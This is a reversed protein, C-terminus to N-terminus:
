FQYSTQVYFTRRAMPLDYRILGPALSPELVKEDFLNRVSAAVDWGAWRRTSRATLDVTTYDAVNPRTDGAARKRDAVWNVQTSFRWNSNMQWDARGYAHNRPAYGADQSTSWDVSHQHSFSGTLSLTRSLDWTTELEFGTGTQEGTNAYTSTSDLRIIDRMRYRFVNLNVQVDKDAQWALVGELTRITEPKLNPNGKQVPNNISYQEVFSPARFARGYLVKAVLNYAADWVVALRPNNTDGFDSYRDRRVGATLAWDKAFQWEDQAYVYSVMRRHPTMFITADTADVVSGLSTAPLIFNKRERTRYLNLDDRGLGFRMNHNNFGSYTAYGSVRLQREWKEPAGIMGNPFASPPLLVFPVPVTDNYEMYSAQAGVGWNKAFEADNWSVDTIFRESKARGVTDLASAIGAGTEVSDRLKYNFRLRFKDYALDANGDVSRNGNNVQGYAGLRDRVTESVGDTSGVRLYGAAQFPGIQGGHQGWVDSTRQSGLRMGVTTGSVDAATKTIINIVGAYADAGYLASGPGRIVEIRAINEVPYGAWVNGKGGTFMTTTPVGNLLMLTQANNASYIGRFTNLPAYALNSRAVHLGPVTELVEDLDTAGMAAIEEATIVSAVAPARRLQQQQGTAISVTSKDGYVLALDEDGSDQAWAGAGYMAAISVAILSWRTTRLKTTM